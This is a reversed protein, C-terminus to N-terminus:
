VYDVGNKRAQKKNKLSRSYLRSLTYTNNRLIATPLLNLVLNTVSIPIWVSPSSCIPILLILPCLLANAAHIIVGYNSETLFRALYKSDCTSKLESKSFGTFLGLEPVVRVWSKVHIRQYFRREAKSVHFLKKNPAFWSSPMLRRIVLASIGDTAVAAVTGVSVALLADAFNVSMLFVNFCVTAVVSLLIFTLYLMVEDSDM